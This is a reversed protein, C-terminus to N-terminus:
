PLLKAREDRSPLQCSDYKGFIRYRLKAVIWYMWDLLFGPIWRFWYAVKWPWGLWRSAVLFVKSRLYVRGDEVYPEYRREINFGSDLGDQFLADVAYRLRTSYFLTGIGERRFTLPVETRGRGAAVVQPLPVSTTAADASRGRFDERMLERTGLSAVGRFNPVTPEYQRYYNVLAQMAHPPLIELDLALSALIFSFEGIQALAVAVAIATRVPQRLLLVVLIAALPKGIVVVALTLRARISM